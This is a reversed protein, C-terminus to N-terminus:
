DSELPEYLQNGCRFPTLWAPRPRDKNVISNTVTQLYIYFPWARSAPIRTVRAAAQKPKRALVRREAVIFRRTSTVRCFTVDCSPSRWKNRWRSFEFVERCVFPIPVVGVSVCHRASEEVKWSIHLRDSLFCNASLYSLRCIMAWSPGVLYRNRWGLSICQGTAGPALMWHDM